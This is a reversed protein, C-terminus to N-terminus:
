NWLFSIQIILAFYFILILFDLWLNFVDYRFLFPQSKFLTINYTRRIIKLWKLRLKLGLYFDILAIVFYNLWNNHRSSLKRSWYLKKCISIEYLLFLCEVDIVDNTCILTKSLNISTLFVYSSFILTLPFFRQIAAAGPNAIVLIHYINLIELILM